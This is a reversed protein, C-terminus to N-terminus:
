GALVRQLRELFVQENEKATLRANDQRRQDRGGGHLEEVRENFFPKAGAGENIEQRLVQQWHPIRALLDNMDAPEYTEMLKLLEVADESRYAASDTARILYRVLIEQHSNREWIARRAIAKLLPRDAAAPSHTLLKFVPEPITADLRLRHVYREITVDRLPVTHTQGDETVLQARTPRAVLQQILGPWQTAPVSDRGLLEAFVAQDRLAPTFLPSLILDIEYDELKLIESVFFDGVADHTLSYTGVLHNIVQASVVRPRELEAALLEILDSVLAINVVRLAVGLRLYAAGCILWV